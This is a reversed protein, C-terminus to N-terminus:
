ARDAIDRVAAALRLCPESDTQSLADALEVLPVDDGDIFRRIPTGSPENEPSGVLAHLEDRIETLTMTTEGEM